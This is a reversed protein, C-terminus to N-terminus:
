NQGYYHIDFPCKHTGVTGCDGCEDSFIVAVPENLANSYLKRIKKRFKNRSRTESLMDEFIQEDLEIKYVADPIGVSMDGRITVTATFARGKNNGM